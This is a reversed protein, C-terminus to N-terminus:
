TQSVRKKSSNCSSTSKKAETPGRPGTKRKLGTRLRSGVSWSRKGPSEPKHKVKEDQIIEM